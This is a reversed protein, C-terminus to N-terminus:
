AVADNRMAVDRLCNPPPAPGLVPRADKKTKLRERLDETSQRSGDVDDVTKNADLGQPTLPGDPASPKGAPTPSAGRGEHQFRCAAGRACRGKQFDFCPQNSSSQNPTTNTRNHMLPNRRGDEM